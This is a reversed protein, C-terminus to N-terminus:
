EQKLALPMPTEMGPMAPPFVLRIAPYTKLLRGGLKHAFEPAFALYTQAAVPQSSPKIVPRGMHSKGIRQPDEDMFYGVDRGLATALWTGAIAAGFVGFEGQEATRRAHNEVIGLWKLRLALEDRATQAADPNAGTEGEGSQATAIVSLEKPTWIDSATEVEYGATRVALALTRLTFHSCHDVIVLDFPNSIFNMTQLLIAGGPKLLRRLKKLFQIPETIHEFVHHLTILDFMGDVDDLSGKHFAEVGPIRLVEDRFKDGQDFGALRWKPNMGGFTRLISGNGCGIDLLRGAEPVRREGLFRRLLHATRPEVDGGGNFVSQEAGGSVAYMDYQAYIRKINSLWENNLWKQVHGCSECVMFDGVRPMPKCDSAVGHLSQPPPALAIRAGGCLICNM